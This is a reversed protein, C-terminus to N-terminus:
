AKLEKIFFSKNNEFCKGYQSTRVGPAETGISM